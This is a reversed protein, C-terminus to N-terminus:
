LKLLTIKEIYALLVKSYCLTSLLYFQALLLVTRTKNLGIDSGHFHFKYYYIEYTNTGM